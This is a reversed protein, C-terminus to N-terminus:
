YVKLHADWLGRMCAHSHIRDQNQLQIIYDRSLTIVIIIKM